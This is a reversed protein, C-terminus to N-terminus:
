SGPNYTWERWSPERHRKADDESEHKERWHTEFRTRFKYLEDCELHDKGACRFGDFGSAFCHWRDAIGTRLKRRRVLEAACQQIMRRSGPKLAWENFSSEIKKLTKQGRKAEPTLLGNPKWDDLELNLGIEDNIRRYYPMDMRNVERAVHDPDTAISFGEKVRQLIGQKDPDTDKRATGVSLVVGVKEGGYLTRLEQIGLLTPNNTHGFGGDSFFFSETPDNSGFQYRLETFYMPAATAARAVQWIEMQEAKTYNVIELAKFKNRDPREDHDYSRILHIKKSSGNKGKKRLLTTAFRYM